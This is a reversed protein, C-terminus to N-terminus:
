EAQARERQELLSLKAKIEQLNKDAYDQALEGLSKGTLMEPSRGENIQSYYDESFSYFGPNRVERKSYSALVQDLSIGERALRLVNNEYVEYFYQVFESHFNLDFVYPGKQVVLNQFSDLVDALYFAMYSSKLNLFDWQRANSECAQRVGRDYRYTSKFFLCYEKVIRVDADFQLWIHYIKDLATYFESSYYDLQQKNKSLLYAETLMQSEVIYFLKNSPKDYYDESSVLPFGNEGYESEISEPLNYDYSAGEAAILRKHMRSLSRFAKFLEREKKGADDSYWDLFDPTAVNLLFNSISGQIRDLEAPGIGKFQTSDLSLGGFRQIESKVWDLKEKEELATEAIDKELPDEFTDILKEADARTESNIVPVCFDCQQLARTTQEAVREVNRLERLHEQPSRLRRASEEFDTYICIASEYFLRADLESYDVHRSNEAYTGIGKVVGSFVGMGIQLPVGYPGSIVSGLAMLQNAANTLKEIGSKQKEETIACVDSSGFVGELFGSKGSAIGAVRETISGIQGVASSLYESVKTAEAATLEPKLDEESLDEGFLHKSLIDLVEQKDKGNLFHTLETLAGSVEKCALSRELEGAFHTVDNLLKAYDPQTKPCTYINQAFSVQSFFFTLILVTAYKSM